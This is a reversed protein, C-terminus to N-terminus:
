IGGNTVKGHGKASVQEDERKLAAALNILTLKQCKIEPLMCVYCISPYISWVWVARNM